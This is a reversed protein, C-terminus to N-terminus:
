ISEVGEIFRLIQALNDEVSNVADVFLASGPQWTQFEKRQEQIQEWTAPSDQPPANARRAIVRACWLQEDSVFTHIPCYAAHHRRAIEHALRRDDGMFVADIIVNLGLTLQAEALRLVIQMLDEWFPNAHALMHEPIIDFLDDLRVLPVRLQLALLRALTTKGTGPLGSFIILTPKMYVMWSSLAFRAKFM